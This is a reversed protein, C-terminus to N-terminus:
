NISNHFENEIIKFISNRFDDIKHFIIMRFNVLKTLDLVIWTKKFTHM